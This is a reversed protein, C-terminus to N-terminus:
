EVCMNNLWGIKSGDWTLGTLSRLRTPIETAHEQYVQPKGTM